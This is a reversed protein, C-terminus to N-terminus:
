DRDDPHPIKDVIVFESDLPDFVPDVIVVEVLLRFTPQADVLTTRRMAELQDILSIMSARCREFETSGPRLQELYAIVVALAKCQERGVTTTPQYENDLDTNLEDLREKTFRPKKTRGANLTTWGGCQPCKGPWNATVIAACQTCWTPLATGNASGIVGIPSAATKDDETDSM